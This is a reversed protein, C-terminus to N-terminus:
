TKSKKVFSIHKKPGVKSSVYLTLASFISGLIAGALVDELFHQALYIRSYGALIALLLFILQLLPNKTYTSLIFTLAFATTTHGSPFSVYNNISVGEIFHNYQGETFFAKPRPHKFIHKLLQALLGSVIFSSLIELSLRQTKLFFFLITSLIVAFLGDGLFTYKDFFADFSPNHWQNLYLFSDAKGMSILLLTSVIIFMLLGILYTRSGIQKQPLLM